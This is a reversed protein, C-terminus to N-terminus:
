TQDPQGPKYRAAISHGCKTSQDFFGLLEIMKETMPRRRKSAALIDWRVLPARSLCARANSLCFIWMAWDSVNRYDNLQRLVQKTAQSRSFDCFGCARNVRQQDSRVSTERGGNPKQMPKRQPSQEPRCRRQGVLYYNEERDAHARPENQRIQEIRDVRITVNSPEFSKRTSSRSKEEAEKMELLKLKMALDEDMLRDFGDTPRDFWKHAEERICQEEKHIKKGDQDHSWRSLIEQTETRYSRSVISNSSRAAAPPMQSPNEAKHRSDAQCANSRM